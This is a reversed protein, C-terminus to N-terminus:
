KSNNMNSHRKNNNYINNKCGSNIGSKLACDNDNNTVNNIINIDDTNSDNKKGKGKSNDKNVVIQLHYIM